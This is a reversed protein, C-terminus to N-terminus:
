RAPPPAKSLEAIGDRAQKAQPSAPALEIVRRWAATAKKPDHKDNAWVVGLNYYSQVHMPDVKTAKEFNAIAQDFEGLDRYMVGQDTLVNPDNADLELARGYAEISKRHQKTDFYNNGLQVWAQRDNPDKAVRARLIEIEQFAQTPLAQSAGPMAVGGPPMGGAMGPPMGTTAGSSGQIRLAADMGVGHGFIYGALFGVFLGAGIGLLTNRNM